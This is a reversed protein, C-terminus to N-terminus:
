SGDGGRDRATAGSTASVPQDANSTAEALATLAAHAADRQAPPFYDRRQVARMERRLRKLARRREAAEARTAATAAERVAEYEEARATAMSQALHQEDARSLTQASMLLSTGGAELVQDALWELHERTRADEPLAVIGDGLQAVGLARM